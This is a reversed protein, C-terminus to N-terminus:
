AFFEARGCMVTSSEFRMELRKILRPAGLRGRARNATVLWGVLAVRPAIEDPTEAKFEGHATSSIL